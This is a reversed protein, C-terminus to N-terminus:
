RATPREGAGATVSVAGNGLEVVATDAPSRSLRCTARAREVGDVLVRLDYEGAPLAARSRGSEGPPLSLRDSHLRDGDPSEVEVTVAHRQRHDYNRVRVADVTAHAASGDGGAAELTAAFTGRRPTGELEGQRAM